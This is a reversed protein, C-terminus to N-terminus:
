SRNRRTSGPTEGTVKKYAKRFAPESEYGCQEAINGISLTSTQLMQRAERMRWATLYQMVPTGVLQNFRQSFASRGMAAQQALLELSWSKEPQCHIKALAKSIKDDFLAALLGTQLKGSTIQSRIVQVFMLYALQNVVSYYGPQATKLEGILLDILTRLQNGSSQESLDLVIVGPLSNLLPWAAKNKFEFFGCIMHTLPGSSGTMEVDVRDDPPMTESNTIVHHNDHPLVVLDGSSLLQKEQDPMHLWAKGRGVLHFPIRRSGSTDTAWDGFYEGNSYIEANLQLRSLVVSLADPSNFRDEPRESM